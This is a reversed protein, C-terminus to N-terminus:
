HRVSAGEVPLGMGRSSVYLELARFEPSGQAFPEARTDRVCGFFREHISVVGAGNLRYVPFGSIQGQSLHDARIWDGYHDEHCNACSLQLQGYRSYYIEKGKDWWSQAPGDIAVDVPMGRSAMSIALTMSEMPASSWGWAEAGMRTTRCNNVFNELSWLDTGDESMKPMAARVGKMSDDISGHCDACSKGEAGDPQDWLDLGQDVFVMAPNEFDDMQMSQTTADRFLWGSWIKPLAGNLHAPAEAETALEIEGENISIPAVTEPESAAYLPAALGFAASLVAALGMAYNM